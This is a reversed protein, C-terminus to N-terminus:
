RGITSQGLEWSGMEVGVEDDWLEIEGVWVSRLRVTGGGRGGREDSRDRDFMM